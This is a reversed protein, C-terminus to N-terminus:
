SATWCHSRCLLISVSPSAPSGPISTLRWMRMASASAGEGSQSDVADIEITKIDRVSHLKSQIAMGSRGRNRHILIMRSPADPLLVVVHMASGSMGIVLDAGNLLEILKPMALQEQYLINFGNIFLLRELQVEGASLGKHYRSKSIFIRRAGKDPM